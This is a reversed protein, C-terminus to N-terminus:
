KISFWMVGMGLYDTIALKRDRLEPPVREIGRAEVGVLDDLRNAFRQLRNRALVATVRQEQYLDHESSSPSPTSSVHATKEADDM